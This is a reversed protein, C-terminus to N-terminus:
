KRKNKKKSSMRAALAAKEAKEQKKAMAFLAVGGILSAVGLGLLVFNGADASGDLTVSRIVVDKLPKDDSNTAVAAIKDVIEMGDTVWGFAAYQGDLSKKYTSQHVIFFQSSASNYSIGSRAMSIVGRDHSLTNNVGNALFEGKIKEDSGGYGTGEPDGGQIMFGEIVRHFILGDYFGEGVLKKFNAVTIPADEPSLQVTIVGYDQVDIYAVDGGEAFGFVAIVSFAVCALCLLLATTRKAKISM